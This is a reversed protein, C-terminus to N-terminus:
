ISGMWDIEMWENEELNKWIKELYLEILMWPSQTLVRNFNFQLLFRCCFTSIKEVQLVNEWNTFCKRFKCFIRDVQLLNEWSGFYERLKCIDEWSACRREVQLINEWSEFYERLKYFIKEIQLISEWSAFYERLKCFIREVQLINEWITFCERLKYFMREVQLINEWIAFIREVQLINEWSAFCERLMCFIREVQVINEWSPHLNVDGQFTSLAKIQHTRKSEGDTKGVKQKCRAFIPASVHTM